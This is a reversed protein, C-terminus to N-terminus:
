AIQSKIKGDILNIYRCKSKAKHLAATLDFKLDARAMNLVNFSPKGTPPVLYRETRGM